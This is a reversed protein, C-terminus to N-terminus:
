GTQALQPEQFRSSADSTPPAMSRLKPEQPELQPPRDGGAVVCICFVLVLMSFWVLLLVLAFM